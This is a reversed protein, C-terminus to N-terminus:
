GIWIEIMDKGDRGGPDEEDDPVQLSMQNRDRVGGRPHILYAALGRVGPRGPTSVFPTNAHGAATNQNREPWALDTASTVKLARRIANQTSM